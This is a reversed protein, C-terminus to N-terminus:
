YASAVPSASPLRDPDFEFLGVLYKYYDPQKEKLNSRTFPDHAADKGYLFISATVAFFERENKMLYKDAPYLQKGKAQNFHFLVGENQFGQPMIQAHFAHLFEHLMVPNQRDFTLMPRVMVVGRTDSALDIDNPNTWQHKAGDWVTVERSIPRSRKSSVPGYCATATFETELCAVEDAVIPITHFFDLVRPSLGVSEVIDLQHRLADSIVAFDKREAIESLDFYYGRYSATAGDAKGAESVVVTEGANCFVPSLVAISLLSAWLFGRM